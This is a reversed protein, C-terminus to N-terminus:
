KNQALERSLNELEEATKMMSLIQPTPVQKRPQQQLDRVSVTNQNQPDLYQDMEHKLTTALSLYRSVTGALDLHSGGVAPPRGEANLADKKKKPASDGAMAKRLELVVKLARESEHTLEPSLKSAGSRSVYDRLNEALFLLRETDRKFIKQRKKEAERRLEEERLAEQRQRVIDRQLSDLALSRGSVDLNPPNPTPEPTSSPIPPQKQVGFLMNGAICSCGNALALCLLIRPGTLLSRRM